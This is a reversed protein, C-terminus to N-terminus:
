LILRLFQPEVLLRGAYEPNSFFETGTNVTVLLPDTPDDACDPPEKTAYSPESRLLHNATNLVNQEESGSTKSPNNGVVRADSYTKGAFM